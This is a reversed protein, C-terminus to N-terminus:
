KYILYSEKWKQQQSLAVDLLWEPDVIRPIMNGEKAMEAFKPWLQKEDPRQGSLLYVPEAPGEDDEPNVKKITPRGMYIAFTGGNTEVIDKYTEAGNPIERTCYIPVRRLLSRKNAKARAVVDKLKVGFEKEKGHDKLLFNDAKAFEGKKVCTDIFDTSIVTPGSALACLFKKTRVLNPAALHTCTLPDQTVLIGLERM